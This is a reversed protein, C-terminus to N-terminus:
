KDGSRTVRREDREWLESHIQASVSKTITYLNSIPLKELISTQVVQAYGTYSYFFDNEEVNDSPTM